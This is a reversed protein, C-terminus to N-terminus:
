AFFTLLNYYVAVACKDIADSSVQEQSAIVSKLTELADTEGERAQLADEASATCTAAMGMEASADVNVGVAEAKMKAWELKARCDDVARKTAAVYAAEDMGCEYARRELQSKREQANDVAQELVDTAEAIKGRHSEVEKIYSEVRQALQTALVDANRRVELLSALKTTIAAVEEPTTGSHMVREILAFQGAKFFARTRGLRYVDEPVDLAKLICAVLVAEPEDIFLSNVQLAHLHM